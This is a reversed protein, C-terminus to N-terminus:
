RIVWSFIYYIHDSTWIECRPLKEFRGELGKELVSLHIASLMLRLMELPFAFEGADNQTM